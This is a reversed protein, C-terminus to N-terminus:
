PRPGPSPTRRPDARWIAPTERRASRSQARAADELARLAMELGLLFCPTAGDYPRRAFEALHAALFGDRFLFGIRWDRSAILDGFVDAVGPLPHSFYLSFCPSFRFRRSVKRGVLAANLYFDRLRAALPTHMRPTASYGKNFPLKAAAPCTNWLVWRFVEANRRSSLPLRYALDVAQQYMLPWEPVTWRAAALYLGSAWRRMPEHVYMHDLRDMLPLTRFRAASDTLLALARERLEGQYEPAFGHAPLAVGVLRYKLLRELPTRGKLLLAAREQISYYDRYSEGGQGWVTVPQGPGQLAHSWVGAGTVPEVEANAICVTALAIRRLEAPDTRPPPLMHWHLGLEAAVRASHTGELVDPRGGTFYTNGTRSAELLAAVCRTDLGATLSCHVQTDPGLRDRITRQSSAIMEDAYDRATRSGSEPDPPQWWTRHTLRAGDCTVHLGCDLRRVEEFWSLDGVSYGIMVMAALQDRCFTVPRQAAIALVSTSFWYGDEDQSVYLPVIGTRDTLVELTKSAARYAVFAFIGESDALAELGDHQVQALWADASSGPSVISSAGRSPTGLVALWDGNPAVVVHRCLGQGRSWILRGGAFDHVAWRGGPYVPELDASSPVFTPAERLPAYRVFLL